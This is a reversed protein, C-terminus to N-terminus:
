HVRKGLVEVVSSVGVVCEKRCKKNEETVVFDYTINLMAAFHISNWWKQVQFEVLVQNSSMLVSWAFSAGHMGIMVRCRRILYYQLDFSLYGLNAFVFMVNEFEKILRNKLMNANQVCRHFCEGNYSHRDSYLVLTKLKRLCQGNENNRWENTKQDKGDCVYMKEFMHYLTVADLSQNSKSTIYSKRDINGFKIVNAYHLLIMENFISIIKENNELIKSNFYNILHNRFQYMIPSRAFKLGNTVLDYNNEDFRTGNDMKIINEYQTKFPEETCYSFDRKWYLSWKSSPPYIVNPLLFSVSDKFVRFNNSYDVFFDNTTYLNIINNTFLVPNLLPMQLDVSESVSKVIEFLAMKSHFYEHDDTLAFHILDSRNGYIYDWKDNYPDRDFTLFWVLLLYALCHWPNPNCDGRSVVWKVNDPLRVVSQPDIESKSTKGRMKKKQKNKKIDTIFEDIVAVSEDERSRDDDVSFLRKDFQTELEDLWKQNIKYPDDASSGMNAPKHKNPIRGNADKGNRVLRRRQQQQQQPQKSIDFTLNNFITSNINEVNYVNNKHNNNFDLSPHYQKITLDKRWPHKPGGFYVWDKSFKSKLEWLRQSFTNNFKCYLSYEFHYNVFMENAIAHNYLENKLSVFDDVVFSEDYLMVDGDPMMYKIRDNKYLKELINLANDVKNFFDKKNIYKYENLKPLLSEKRLFTLKENITELDLFSQYQEQKHTLAILNGSKKTKHNNNNDKGNTSSYDKNTLKAYVNKAYCTSISPFVNKKKQKKNNVNKDNDINLNKYYSLDKSKLNVSNDFWCYLESWPLENNINRDIEETEKSKKTEEAPAGCLQYKQPMMTNKYMKSGLHTQECQNFQPGTLVKFNNTKSISNINSKLGYDIDSQISLPIQPTAMELFDENASSTDSSSALSAAIRLLQDGNALHHYKSVTESFQPLQAQSSSKSITTQLVVVERKHISQDPILVQSLFVLIWTVAVMFLFALWIRLCLHQPLKLKM